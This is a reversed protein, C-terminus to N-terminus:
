RETRYVTAVQVNWTQSRKLPYSCEGPSLYMGFVRYVLTVHVRLGNPTAQITCDDSSAYPHHVANGIMMEYSCHVLFSVLVRFIGGHMRQCSLTSLEPRKCKEQIKLRNQTLQPDNRAM